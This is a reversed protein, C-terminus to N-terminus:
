SHGIRSLKASSHPSTPPLPPRSPLTSTSAKERVMQFKANTQFKDNTVTGDVTGGGKQFLNVGEMIVDSIGTILKLSGSEEDKKQLMERLKWEELKRVFNFQKSGSEPLELCQAVVDHLSLSQLWQAANWKQEEGDDDSKKEEKKRRGASKEGKREGECDEKVAASSDRKNVAATSKGGFGTKAKSPAIPQTSMKGQKRDKLAKQIAVATTTIKVSAALKVGKIGQEFAKFDLGGTKSYDWRDFVAALEEKTAPIGIASMATQFEKKDLVGNGDADWDRFLEMPKYNAERLAAKLQQAIETAREDLQKAKAAAQYAAQDAQSEIHAAPKPVDLSAAALTAETAPAAVTAATVAPAPAAGSSASPGESSPITVDAPPGEGAPQLVSSEPAAGVGGDGSDRLKASSGRTSDRIVARLGSLGSQRKARTLCRVRVWGESGAGAVDGADGVQRVRAFGSELAQLEVEADNALVHELQEAGDSPEARLRTGDAFIPNLMYVHEGVEFQDAAAAPVDPVASRRARVSARQHAETLEGVVMQEEDTFGGLGSHRFLLSTGKALQETLAALEVKLESLAADRAQLQDDRESLQAELDAVKEEREMLADVALQAIEELGVLGQKREIRSLNTARVWGTASDVKVDRIEVFGNAALALVEVEHDNLIFMDSFESQVEPAVRLRTGDKFYPNMAWVREGVAFGHESAAAPPAAALAAPAVSPAAVPASAASSPESAVAAAPAELFTVLPARAPASTLEAAPASTLEAVSPPAATGAPAIATVAAAAPASPTPTSANPEDAADTAHPTVGGFADSEPPPTSLSEDAPAASAAHLEELPVVAAEAFPPAAAADPELASTVACEGPATAMVIGAAAVEENLASSGGIAVTDLAEPATAEGASEEIAPTRQESTLEPASVPTAAHHLLADETSSVKTKTPPSKGAKAGHGRTSARPSPNGRGANKKSSSKDLAPVKKPAM